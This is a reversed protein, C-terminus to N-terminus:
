EPVPEHGGRRPRVARIQKGCIVKRYYFCASTGSIENWYTLTTKEQLIVVGMVVEPTEERGESAGAGSHRKETRFM